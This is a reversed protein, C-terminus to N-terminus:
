SRLSAADIVFRYRVDSRLMREFAVNIDRMPIVEVEAAIGREACFDLMEQTEAIGGILSGAFRRRQGILGFAPVALPKEPVGLLVLTGDLKALRLFASLDHQSSVTDLILDFRKERKALAKDDRSSVVESAGMKLADAKKEPSASFVTVEAGMASALKVGMHGLGGFGVIAVRQGQEVKWTKLPSYMTVGACLLPAVGSPPQLPDLKLTFREDVVIRSSYGGFTPTTGDRELSNYTWVTGDECYQELGRDCSSCVRCADVMCGVGALDGVKFRKVNAGVREVRGVIEHGPVMPFKSAGWEGRAQHVDSHCVGSFLIEIDVDHPGPERRRITHPKLPSKPDFAAYAPTETM